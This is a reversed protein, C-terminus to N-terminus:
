LDLIWSPIRWQDHHVKYYLLVSLGKKGIVYEYWPVANQHMEYGFQKNMKAWKDKDMRSGAM